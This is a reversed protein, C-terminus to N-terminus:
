REALAPSGAEADQRSRAIIRLFIDRMPEYNRGMGTQVAAFYETRREGEMNDFNLIPVGAQLAMLMALMRSVRGNGDRFPHILVLEVHVVALAHAITIDDGRCPTHIMLFHQELEAMLQPIFAPAAFPFGDKSM